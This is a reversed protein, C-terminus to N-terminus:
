AQNGQKVIVASGSKDPMPVLIEPKDAMFEDVATRAGIWANYDHVVIMGGVSMLPYFFKLGAMIPSYLDADIHVFAFKMAHLGDPISDPFYGPIFKVNGNQVRVFRTVMEISTDSFHNASVQSGTALAEERHGRETFGEFTDFLYLAREPAYHHILRATAGKYVGLEAFSGPVSRFIVSRLLLILMDQRVTDWADMKIVHRQSHDDPIAYGGFRDIFDPNYWFSSEHIDMRGQLYFSKQGWLTSLRLLGLQGLRRAYHRPKRLVRAIKRMM